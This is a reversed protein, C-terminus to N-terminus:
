HKVSPGFENDGIKSDECWWIILIISGFPIFSLLQWWGSRGTDHLRRAGAALGPLLIIIAGIGCTVISLLFSFLQFWWFESRRARGNFDAYKNFCVRISEGFDMSRDASNPQSQTQQFQYNSSPQRYSQQQQSFGPAAPLRLQPNSPMAPQAPAPPALLAAIEPIQDAPLWNAQGESWVHSTHQLGHSLLENLEFPGSQQGGNVLFYKKM